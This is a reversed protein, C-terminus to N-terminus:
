AVVKNIGLVNDLQIKRIESVPKSAWYSDIILQKQLDDLSDVFFTEGKDNQIKYRTVTCPSTSTAIQLYYKGTKTNYAIRNPIVWEYNNTYNRETPKENTKREIVTAINNYDVGIRVNTKTYKEIVWGAKKYIAKLPMESKYYVRAFNGGHINKVAEIIKNTEM